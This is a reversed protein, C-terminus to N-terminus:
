KGRKSSQILILILILLSCHPMCLMGVITGYGHIYGLLLQRNGLVAPVYLWCHIITGYGHIYQSEVSDSEIELSSVCSDDLLIQDVEKDSLFPKYKEMAKKYQYM